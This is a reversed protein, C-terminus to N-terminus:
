KSSERRSEVIPRRESVRRHAVNVTIALAVILAMGIAVRLSMMRSGTQGNAITDAFFVAVAINPLVGLATGAVYHRISVGTVGLGWNLLPALGLALRLTFVTRFGNQTVQEDLRRLRTSFGYLMRQLCDRAVYRAVLFTGTTGVLAAGWGYAFARPWGFLAAGMVILLTGVMPVRAFIGAAVTAMFVLPAYPANPDVLARMGELSMHGRVLRWSVWVAVVVIGLLLARLVLHMGFSVREAKTMRAEGIANAVAMTQDLTPVGPVPSLRTLVLREERRVCGEQPLAVAAVPIIARPVDSKPELPLSWPSDANDTRHLVQEARRRSPLRTTVVRDDDRRDSSSARRWSLPAPVVAAIPVVAQPVIMTITSPAAIALPLGRRSRNM